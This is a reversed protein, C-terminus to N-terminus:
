GCFRCYDRHAKRRCTKMRLFLPRKFFSNGCRSWKGAKRTRSISANGGDVTAAVAGKVVGLLRQLAPKRLLLLSVATRNRRYNARRLFRLWAIHGVRSSVPACGSAPATHRRRCSYPSSFAASMLRTSRKIRMPLRVAIGTVSEQMKSKRANPRLNAVFM